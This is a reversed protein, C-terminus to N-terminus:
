SHDTQQFMKYLSSNPPGAGGRALGAEFSEVQNGTASQPSQKGRFFASFGAFNLAFHPFPISTKQTNQNQKVPLKKKKKPVKLVLFVREPM